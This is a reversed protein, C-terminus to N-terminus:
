DALRPRHILAMTAAGAVAEIPLLALLVGAGGAGVGLLGAALLPGIIAGLRGVAVSAGVGSGRIAVEYYCPALGYLPLPVSSVFFGVAGGAVAAALFGSETMALAIVSVALGVYWLAITRHPRPRELLEGLILVSVGACINFLVSVVSAEPKALGRDGLLTPLWNLLVYLSLLSAFSATWLLLTSVARGDGFLIWAFGRAPETTPPARHAELFARSEPMAFACLPALALPALGGVLFIARWDLNAAVIGAVAGGFPLGCTIRTVLRARHEAAVAEAALAMLNPLAGGLGLGALLRVALLADFPAVVATVLSFLGFVALCGLLTRKRGVRDAVRGFIVAGILLGLISASFLPGLQERTLGLAPAMRPAALGMSQIDLGECMVGLFCLTLTLGARRAGGIVGAQAM